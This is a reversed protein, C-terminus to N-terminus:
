LDFDLSFRLEKVFIEGLTQRFLKFDFIAARARADILHDGGIQIRAPSIRPVVDVDLRELDQGVDM